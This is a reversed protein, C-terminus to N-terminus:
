SEREKVIPRRSDGQTECRKSKLFSVVECLDKFVKEFFSVRACLHDQTLFRRVDVNLPPRYEISSFIIPTLLVVFSKGEEASPDVLIQIDVLYTQYSVINSGERM